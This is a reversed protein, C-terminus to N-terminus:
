APSSPFTMTQYDNIRSKTCLNRIANKNNPTAADMTAHATASHWSFLTQGKTAAVLNTRPNGKPPLNATNGRKKASTTYPLTFFLKSTLTSLKSYQGHLPTSRTSPFSDSKRVGLPFISLTSLTSISGIALLLEWNSVPLVPVPLMPLVPLMLLESSKDGM